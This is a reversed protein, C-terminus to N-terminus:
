PGVIVAQAPTLTAILLGGLTSISIVTVTALRKIKSLKIAFFITTNTKM